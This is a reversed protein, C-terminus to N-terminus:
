STKVKWGVQEPTRLRRGVEWNTKLGEEGLLDYVARKQPNM